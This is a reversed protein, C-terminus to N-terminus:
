VQKRNGIILVIWCALAVVSWEVILRPLDVEVPRCVYLPHCRPPDFLFGYTNIILDTLPVDKPAYTFDYTIKWPPFLGMVLAVLLALIAVVKETRSKLM